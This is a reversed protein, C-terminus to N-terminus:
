RRFNEAGGILGGANGYNNVLYNAGVKFILFLLLTASQMMKACLGRNRYHPGPSGLEFGPGQYYLISVFKIKGLNGYCHSARIKKVM